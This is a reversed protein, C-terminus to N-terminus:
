HLLQKLAAKNDSPFGPYRDEQAPFDDIGKDPSTAQSTRHSGLNEPASASPVTLSM